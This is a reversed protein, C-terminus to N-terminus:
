SQGKYLRTKILSRVRDRLPSLSLLTILLVCLYVLALSCVDVVWSNGLSFARRLLFTSAGAAIVGPILNTTYWGRYASPLLRRHLFYLSFAVYGMTLVMWSIAAGTTGYSMVLLWTLPLMVMCAIVNQYLAFRVWGFALTLMYPVSMLANGAYGVALIAVIPAASRSESSTPFALRLLDDSFLCVVATIPVVLLTAFQSGLLYLTELEALSKTEALQTMRPLLTKSLPGVPKCLSMSITTALAYLGFDHLSVTGSLIVKDIQMLLISLAVVGTVGAAYRWISRIHAIEFMKRGDPLSKNVAVIMVLVQAATAFILWWFLLTISPEVFALVIASGLTRVTIGVISIGNLLVHHQLGLLAGTYFGLILQLGIQLFMLRLMDIVLDVPVNEVSLWSAVLEPLFTVSALTLTIALSWYLFELSRVFSPIRHKSAETSSIRSLERNIAPTVGLDSLTALATLTAHVGILGYLEVGLYALYVPLIVLQALTLWFTGVYNALIGTILRNPQRGIKFLSM